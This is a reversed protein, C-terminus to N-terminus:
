VNSEYRGVLNQSHTGMEPITQWRSWLKNYSLHRFQLLSDREVMGSFDELEKRHQRYEQQEEANLPEWFLYLLVTKKDPQTYCLGFFHKILQAADLMTFNVKGDAIREMPRFWKSSKRHDTIKFYSRSFVQKKNSLIELFKSEIALTLNEGQLFVDLHPNTGKLGNEM